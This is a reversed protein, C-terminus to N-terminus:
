VLLFGELTRSDTDTQLTNGFGAANWVTNSATTMWLPVIVNQVPRYTM